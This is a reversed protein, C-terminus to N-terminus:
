PQILCVHDENKRNTAAVSLFVDASVEHASEFVSALNAGGNTADDASVSTVGSLDRVGAYKNRDDIRRGYSRVRFRKLRHDPMEQNRVRFEFDSFHFPFGNLNGCFYLYGRGRGELSEKGESLIKEKTKLSLKSHRIALFDHLCHNGRGAEAGPHKGCRLGHRLFHEGNGALRQDLMCDLFSPGASDLSNNNHNSFGLGQNLLMKGGIM